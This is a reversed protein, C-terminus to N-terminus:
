FIITITILPPLEKKETTAGMQSPNTAGIIEKVKGNGFTTDNARSHLRKVHGKMEMM